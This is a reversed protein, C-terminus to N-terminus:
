LCMLTICTVSITHLLLGSMYLLSISSFYISYVLMVNLQCCRWPHFVYVHVDHVKTVIIYYCSGVVFLFGSVAWRNWAVQEGDNSSALHIQYLDDAKLLYKSIKISVAHQREMSSDEAM